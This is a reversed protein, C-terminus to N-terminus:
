ASAPIGRLTPRSTRGFADVPEEAHAEQLRKAEDWHRRASALDGARVSALGADILEQHRTQWPDRQAPMPVPLIDATPQPTPTDEADRNQEDALCAAIMLAQRWGQTITRHPMPSGFFCRFSGSGLVTLRALADMGTVDGWGAHVIEGADIWIGGSCDTSALRLVGSRNTLCLMQVLDLVGITGLRGTMAEETALVAEVAEVLTAAGVPAHRVTEAGAALLTDDSRQSRDHSVVVVRPAPEHASVERLMALGEDTADEIELIAVTPHAHELRTAMTQANRALHVDIDDRQAYLGRWLAMALGDQSVAVLITKRIEM